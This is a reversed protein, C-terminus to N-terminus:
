NPPLPRLSIPSNPLRKRANSGPPNRGSPTWCRASRTEPAPPPASMPREQATDGREERPHLPMEPSSPRLKEPVDGGGRQSVQALYDAEEPPTDSKSHVLIIELSLPIERPKLLALEFGIGLIVLLHLAITLFLTLGLRDAASVRPADTLATM